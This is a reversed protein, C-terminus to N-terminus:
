QAALRQLAQPDLIEVRGTGRRVWGRSEFDKLARSVVERASGLEVALDYHTILLQPGGESLALLKRALRVDLRTFVVEEIVMLMDTLRRGYAQFVFQRFGPSADIARHFSAASLAVADVVTETIGSAPYAVHSFLCATTLICSEGPGIRYLVIERGQPSMQQIRIRGAMVLFYRTCSDGAHFVAQGAPLELRRAEHLAELGAPDTVQQLAPFQARWDLM